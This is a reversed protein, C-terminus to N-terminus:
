KSLEVLALLIEVNKVMSQVPVYEFRGHANEYGASLNPCPLGRFTLASGDTGGRFPECVPTIGCASIAAKLRETLQPVTRLIEKMNRYQETVTVTVTGPGYTENLRDAISFLLAERAAFADADFDRVILSLEAHECVASCSEMHFFGQTGETYQPKENEPLASMFENAIDVSNIMIGKATGTHVSRGRIVVRAESANFTEDEYWGLHDGDLTYATKSGFRDLDLTHALGGVEEDPTFALSVPGHPIEPHSILHEAMTMIAAISAKDDGGLLTTGDTLILDQGVYLGLNPYDARRMVINKEKNLLIDGGDYDTLVWPRVNEGSADPATDMHAIFGLSEAAYPLNSPIQAYVVCNERDYFVDSAGIALLERCLEGALDRQRGTTPWTGRFHESQTNIKAYRILREKVNDYFSM